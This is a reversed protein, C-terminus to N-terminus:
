PNLLVRYFRRPRGTTEDVVEVTGSGIQAPRLPTWQPARLDETYEILYNVPAPLQFAFRFQGSNQWQLAILQPALSPPALRNPLGPTPYNFFALTAAGDPWRGQSVDNTQPGFTVTDLATIGDPAFLGIAEGAQRLAFNVHLGAGTGNQGPENDAWVLLFGRPPIVFGAPIRYQRPNALNDTLYYGALNVPSDGPNYLEFWDEFDGDAPDAVTRNNAAM